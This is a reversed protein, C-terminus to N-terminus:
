QGGRTQLCADDDDDDDDDGLFSHHCQVIILPVDARKMVACRYARARVCVCVCVRVCVCPWASHVTDSERM